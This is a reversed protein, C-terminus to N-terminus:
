AIRPAEQLLEDQVSGQAAFQWLQRWHKMVEADSYFAENERQYTALNPYDIEWIVENATGFAPAWLTPVALGLKKRLAAVGESIQMYERFQGYLIQQRIRQRYMEGEKTSRCSIACFVLCAPIALRVARALLTNV